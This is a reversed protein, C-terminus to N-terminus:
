APVPSVRWAQRRRMAYRIAATLESITLRGALEAYLVKRNKRVFKPATGTDGLLYLAETRWLLHALAVPDLEPNRTGTRVTRLLVGGRVGRSAEILGCWRPVIRRIRIAHASDYVITLRELCQRYWVLQGPLRALSDLASKIEYGHVCGNIVAVDVRARAHALGLEDIVLSNPTRKARRLRQSHLAARIDSDSLPRERRQASM